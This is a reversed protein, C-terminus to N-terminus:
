AGGGTVVAAALAAAGAGCLVWTRWAPVRGLRFAATVALAATVAVALVWGGIALLADTGGFSGRPLSGGWFVTVVALAGLAAEGFWLYRAVAGELGDDSRRATALWVSLAAVAALAAFWCATAADAPGVLLTPGLVAQAGRLRALDLTEWRFAGAQLAVAVVALSGALFLDDKGAARVARGLTVLGLGGVVVPLTGGVIALLYGLLLVAGAARAGIGWGRLSGAASSESPANEPREGIM